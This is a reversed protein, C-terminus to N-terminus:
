DFVPSLRGLIECSSRRWWLQVLFMSVNLVGLAGETTAFAVDRTGGSSYDIVLLGVIEGGAALDWVKSAGKHLTSSCNDFAIVYKNPGLRRLVVVRRKRIAEQGLFCRMVFYDSAALVCQQV